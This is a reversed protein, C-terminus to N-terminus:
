IDPLGVAGRVFSRLNKFAPCKAACIELNLKEALQPNMNTSYSSPRGRRQSLRILKEKPRRLAAPDPAAKATPGAARKVSADDAWFWAELEEVPVCVLTPVPIPRLAQHIRARLAAEDNLTQTGPICDLDHIIIIHGCGREALDVTWHRAGKVLSSCGTFYHGEFAAGKTESIRRVLTRVTELDSQSEALLGFRVVQRGNRSRGRRRM